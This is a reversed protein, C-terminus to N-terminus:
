RCFSLPHVQRNKSEKWSWFAPTIYQTDTNHMYTFKFLSRLWPSAGKAQHKNWKWLTEKGQIRWKSARMNEICPRNIATFLVTRHLQPAVQARQALARLGMRDRLVTNETGTTAAIDPIRSVQMDAEQANGSGEGTKWGWRGSANSICSSPGELLSGFPCSLEKNPRGGRLGPWHSAGRHSSKQQRVMINLHAEDAPSNKKIFYFLVLASSM